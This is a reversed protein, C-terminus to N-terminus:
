RDLSMRRVRRSWKPKGPSRLTRRNREDEESSADSMSNSSGVSSDDSLESDSDDGDRAGFSVPIFLRSLLNKFSAFFGEEGDSSYSDESDYRKRRKRASSDKVLLTLQNLPFSSKNRGGCFSTILYYLAQLFVLFIMGAFINVIPNLFYQSINSLHNVLGFISTIQGLAQVVIPSEDIQKVGYSLRCPHCIELDTPGEKESGQKYIARRCSIGSSPLFPEYKTNLSSAFSRKQTYSFSCQWIPNSKKDSFYGGGNNINVCVASHVDVKDCNNQDSGSSLISKDCSLFNSGTNSKDFVIKGLYTSLEDGQECYYEKKGKNTWPMVGGKTLKEGISSLILTFVCITVLSFGIKLNDEQQQRAKKSKPRWSLITRRKKTRKM